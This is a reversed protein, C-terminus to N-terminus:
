FLGVVAKLSQAHVKKLHSVNNTKESKLCPIQSFGLSKAILAIILLLLLVAILPLVAFKLIFLIDVIEGKVTDVIEEVKLMVYVSDKLPLYIVKCNSHRQREM